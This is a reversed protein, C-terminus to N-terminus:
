VASAYPASSVMGRQREVVAVIAVVVVV